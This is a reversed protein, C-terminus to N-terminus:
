ENPSRSRNRAVPVDPRKRIPKFARWVTVYLWQFMGSGLARELAYTVRRKIGPPESAHAASEWSAQIDIASDINAANGRKRAVFYLDNWAAGFGLVHSDFVEALPIATSFERMSINRYYNWGRETTGPSSTSEMRSTGHEPRGFSACTVICWGGPKLMRIMNNLTERWYPNHEFCELSMVIDFHNDPGAFQHGSAVIDVGPGEVLDVGVYEVLASGLPSQHVVERISGNVDYSGVELILIPGKPAAAALSSKVFQLATHHM